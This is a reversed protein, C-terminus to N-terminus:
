NNFRYIDGRSVVGNSTDYPVAGWPISGGTDYNQTEKDPGHSIIIWDPHERGPGFHHERISFFLGRPWGSATDNHYIYEHASLHGEIGHKNFPDVPISGIYSTPEVLEEMRTHSQLEAATSSDPYANNDLRYTELATSLAKIDAEVRAVKAKTQALLFNPVAIAALIGIIAVVILLEILTFAKQNMM